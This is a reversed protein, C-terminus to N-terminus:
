YTRPDLNTPNDFLGVRLINDSHDGPMRGGCALLFVLITLILFFLLHQPRIMRKVDNKLLSM